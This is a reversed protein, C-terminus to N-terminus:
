WLSWHIHQHTQYKKRRETNWISMVSLCLTTVPSECIVLWLWSFIILYVHMHYVFICYILRTNLFMHVKLYIYTHTHISSFLHSSVVTLIISIIYPSHFQGFLIIQIIKFGFHKSVSIKLSFLKSYNWFFQLFINFCNGIPIESFFFPKLPM